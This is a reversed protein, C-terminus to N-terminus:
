IYDFVDDPLTLVLTEFVPEIDVILSLDDYYYFYIGIQAENLNSVTLTSKSKEIENQVIEFEGMTSVEMNRILLGDLLIKDEGLTFDLIRDHGDGIGFVFMDSGPGGSLIDDGPGGTLRDGGSGGSLVDDGPGGILRDGGSGGELHDNGLRGMLTDNGAGGYLADNGLTGALNDNGNIVFMEGDRITGSFAGTTLKIVSGDTLSVTATLSRLGTATFVDEETVSDYSIDFSGGPDLEYDDITYEAVEQGDWLIIKDMGLAFDAITDSGSGTRFLFVDAGDGGTLVDNGAGGDLSNDRRDGALVDNHASGTLNEVDPLSETRRVGSADTYYLDVLSPFADGAADGGAASLNHLRVTVGKTSAAYSVTDRGGGGYFRDAGVGGQLSDNGAGGELRDDGPGGILHDNGTGAALWDNGLGGFLRDDGSGGRLLDDGGGPGGYLADDGAGGELINDRRDGALVDDHASGTLHEVDPLSETRSAGSADTYNFDVLSPFTDGRADGGAAKLSHLRVTVGELSATYSVTDQGSGGYFRDAGVGGELTDDGAGGELRDNGALGEIIDAGSTGTLTDDDITGSLENPTLDVAPTDVPPIPRTPSEEDTDVFLFSDATLAVPEVDFVEVSQNDDGWSIIARSSPGEITLDDFGLGAHEIQIKDVGLEFHRIRDNGDGPGFVFIDEGAGGHLFDDGAEGYLVDNGDDGYLFDRDDGGALVDDGADGYLNDFGESGFLSDNGDGGYHLDRGAGGVLTDDGTGGRLEDDDENGFITDDGANGYLIDDGDLGRIVDAGATGSFTDDVNTGTLIAM